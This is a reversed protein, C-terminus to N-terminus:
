EFALKYLELEDRTTIILLHWGHNINALHYLRPQTVNVTTEGGQTSADSGLQTANLPKGDVTVNLLATGTAVIYANSGYFGAALAKEGNTAVAKEALITWKGALYLKGPTIAGPLTYNFAINKRFGGENGLPVPALGYGAFLDNTRPLARAQPPELPTATVNFGSSNLVNRLAEEAKRLDLVGPQNFRLNGIGDVLFTHPLVQSDLVKSFSYNDDLAVPFAVNLRAAEAAVLRADEQFSFEPSHVAIAMVGQTEYKRVLTSLAAADRVCAPCTSSWSLVILTRCSYDELSRNVGDLWRVTPFPRADRYFADQAPSLNVCPTGQPTPNATAMWIITAAAVAIILAIATKPIGRPAAAAQPKNGPKRKPLKM